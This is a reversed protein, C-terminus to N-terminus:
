ACICTPYSDRDSTSSASDHCLKAHGQLSQDNTEAMTNHTLSCRHMSLRQLLELLQAHRSVSQVDAIYSIRKWM